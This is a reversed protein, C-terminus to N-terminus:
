RVPLTRDRPEDAQTFLYVNLFKQMEAELEPTVEFGHGAGEMRLLYAPVKVKELAEELKVAHSFTVRPDKTGHVILCPADGASVYAKPSAAQALEKAEFLPKGLLRSRPSDVAGHDFTSEQTDLLDYLGFFDIAACVRSSQDLHPGIDGELGDEPHTMGMLLALHGGASVGWVMVRDADLGYEQAHAKLWRIAAKCDHIQAPWIAEGTLRYNITVGACNGDSVYSLLRGTGSSKQGDMWSGGHIFVVVPLKKSAPSEPLMLDLCQRSNSSEAYNLDKFMRVSQRADDPVQAVVIGLASATLILLTGSSIVTM